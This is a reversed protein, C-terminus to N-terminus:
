AMGGASIRLTYIIQIKRNASKQIPHFILHTIYKTPNEDNRLAIEDFVYDGSYDVATDTADQGDPEGYGLTATIVIDSYPQGNFPMIAINNETDGEVLLSKSVGSASYLGSDTTGDVKPAKYTVNGTGDIVTGGNGFEIHSIGYHEDSKSALLSAIVLSANEMNIANYKNLLVEGSDDDIIKVHGVIGLNTKETFLSNTM